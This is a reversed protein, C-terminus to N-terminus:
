SEAHQEEKQKRYEELGLRLLDHIARTDTIGAEKAASQVEGILTTDFRYTKAIKQGRANSRTGKRM